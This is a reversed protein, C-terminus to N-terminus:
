TTSAGARLKSSRELWRTRPMRRECGSHCASLLAPPGLSCAKMLAPKNSGSTKAGTRVAWPLLGRKDWCVSLHAVLRQLRHAVPQTLEVKPEPAVEPMLPPHPTRAWETIIRQNPWSEHGKPMNPKLLLLGPWALARDANPKLPGVPGVLM